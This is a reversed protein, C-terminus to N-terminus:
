PEDCHSVMVPDLALKNDIPGKSTFSTILLFNKYFNYKCIDEFYQDHQAPRVWHHYIFHILENNGLITIYNNTLMPEPLPKYDIQHWTVVQIM